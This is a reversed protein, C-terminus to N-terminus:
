AVRPALSAEGRSLTRAHHSLCTCEIDPLMRHDNTGSKSLFDRQCRLMCPKCIACATCVSTCNVSAPCSQCTVEARRTVLRSYAAAPQLRLVSAWCHSTRMATPWQGDLFFKACIGLIGAISAPAFALLISGQQPQWIHLRASIPKSAHTCSKHLFGKLCDPVSAPAPVHYAIRAHRFNHLFLRGVRLKLM